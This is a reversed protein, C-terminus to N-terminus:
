YLGPCGVGLEDEGAQRLDIGQEYFLVAWSADDFRRRHETFVPRLAEEQGPRAGLALRFYAYVDLAHRSRRQRRPRVPM